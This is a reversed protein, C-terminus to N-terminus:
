RCRQHRDPALEIEHWEHEHVTGADHRMGLDRGHLLGDSCRTGQRRDIGDAIRNERRDPGVRPGESADLWQPAGLSMPGPESARRMLEHESLKTKLSIPRPKDAKVMGGSQGAVGAPHGISHRRDPAQKQDEREHCCNADPSAQGTGHNGEPLRRVGNLLKNKVARCDVRPFPAPNRSTALVAIAIRRMAAASAVKSRYTGRVRTRLRTSRPSPAPPARRRSSVM